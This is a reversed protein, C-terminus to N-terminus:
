TCAPEGYAAIGGLQLPRLATRVSLKALPVIISETGPPCAGAWTQCTSPAYTGRPHVPSAVGRRGMRHETM